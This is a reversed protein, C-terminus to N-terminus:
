SVAEAQEETHSYVGTRYQTGRDGGQGNVQTPDIRSFFVDVLSEYSVESPKYHVQVAETHGSSGSCVEGYTPKEINGQTYGVSTLTVGPVRQFALELGRCVLVLGCM